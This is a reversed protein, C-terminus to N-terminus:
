ALRSQEATRTDSIQRVEALAANFAASGFAPPPGPRFQDASTLFWRAMGPFQGGAVPAGPANTTWFGPGAPPAPNAAVSFGDSHARTVMAAGVARGIA